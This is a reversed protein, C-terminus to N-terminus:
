EAWRYGPPRRPTNGRPSLGWEKAQCLAARRPSCNSCSTCDPWHRCTLLHCSPGEWHWFAVPKLGQRLSKRGRGTGLLFSHSGKQTLTRRVTRWCGDMWTSTKQGAWPFSLTSGSDGLQKSSPVLLCIVVPNLCDIVLTNLKPNWPVNLYPDRGTPWNQCWSSPM